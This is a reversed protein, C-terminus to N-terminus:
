YILDWEEVEKKSIKFFRRLKEREWNDLTEDRDVSFCDWKEIFKIIEKKTRM